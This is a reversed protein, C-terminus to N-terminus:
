ELLIASHSAKFDTRPGSPYQEIRIPGKGLTYYILWYMPFNPDPTGYGTEYSYQVIITEGEIHNTNSASDRFVLTDVHDIVRATIPIPNSLASNTLAGCSWSTGTNLPGAVLFVPGSGQGHQTTTTTGPAVTDFLQHQSSYLRVRSLDAVYIAGGGIPLLARIQPGSNVYNLDYSGARANAVSGSFTGVYISYDTDFAIASPSNVQLGAVVNYATDSSIYFRGSSNTILTQARRHLISFVNSIQALAVLQNSRYSYVRIGDSTVLRPVIPNTDPGFDRWASLALIPSYTSQIRTFPVAPDLPGGVLTGDSVGVYVKGDGLVAISRISSKIAPRAVFTWSAGDNSSAYVSDQSTVLITGLSDLAIHGRYPSFSAAARIWPGGGGRSFVGSTDTLAFIRGSRSMLLESVSLTSVYTTDYTGFHFGAALPFLVSQGLSDCLVSDTTSRIRFAQRGNELIHSGDM